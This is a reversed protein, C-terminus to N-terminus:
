AELEQLRNFISEKEKIIQERKVLGEDRKQLAKEQAEVKSSKKNIEVQLVKLNSQTDGAEKLRKDALLLVSDAREKATNLTESAETNAQDLIATAEDRASSLAANALEAKSVAENELRQITEIGGKAEILEKYETIKDTIENLKEPNKLIELIDM